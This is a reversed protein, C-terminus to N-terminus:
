EFIKSVIKPVKKKLIIQGMKTWYETNKGFIFVKSAM